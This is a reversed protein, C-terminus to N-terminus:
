VLTRVEKCHTKM